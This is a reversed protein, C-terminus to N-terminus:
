LLLQPSTTYPRSPQSIRSSSTSFAQTSRSHTTPSTRSRPSCWRSRQRRTQRSCDGTSTAGTACTRTTATKRRSPTSTRCRHARAFAAADTPTGVSLLWSRPAARVMKQTEAPRKLFLKVTATLMQLQVQPTEEEFTELFSELLEDANDIREAYEGIIWIMSAKAEPEDLTDLNECLTGIISEYRNPFKRFIDKIVIVAEQVVYNVKTQILELLM